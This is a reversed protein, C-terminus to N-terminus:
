WFLIEIQTSNQNFLRLTLCIYLLSVKILYIKKAPFFFDFLLM